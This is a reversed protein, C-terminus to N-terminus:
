REASNPDSLRAAWRDLEAVPILWLEDVKFAPLRDPGASALLKKVSTHGLGLLAAAEDVSVNVRQRLDTPEVSPPVDVVMPADHRPMALM